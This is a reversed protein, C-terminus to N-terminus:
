QAGTVTADMEDAAENQEGRSVMQKCRDEHRGKDKHRRRSDYTTNGGSRETENLKEDWGENM